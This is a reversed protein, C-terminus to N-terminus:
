SRSRGPFPTRRGSPRARSSRAAAPTIQPPVYPGPDVCPPTQEPASAANGTGAARTRYAVAVRDMSQCLKYAGIKDNWSAKSATEAAKAKEEDTQAPLKALAAGFTFATAFAALMSLRM